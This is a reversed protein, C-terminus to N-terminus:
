ESFYHKGNSYWVWGYIDKMKSMKKCKNCVFLSCIGCDGKIEVSAERKNCVECKNKM